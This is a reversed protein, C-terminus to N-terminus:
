GFFLVDEGPSTDPRGKGYSVIFDGGEARRALCHLGKEQFIEVEQRSLFETLPAFLDKVTATGVFWAANIM